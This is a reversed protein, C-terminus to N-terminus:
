TSRSVSHAVCEVLVHVSVYYRACRGERGGERVTAGLFATGILPKVLLRNASWMM